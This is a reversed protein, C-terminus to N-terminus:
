ELLDGLSQVVLDPRIRSAEAEERSTVGSLVLVTTMGARAGGEIDTELRDGVMVTRRPEVGLIKTAVEFIRGCPKGIEIPRRGSATRVASVISGAGPHPGKETPYTADRNTSIFRAGSRIIRSATRLKDYTFHLDIGVVVYDAPWDPVLTFGAASLESRLGEEGVVHVRAGPAVDLLYLSTAYASTVVQGESSRIGLGLLIEVYEDRTRSSNNTLFAYSKGSAELEEIFASAGPLATRRLYVVGDLDV